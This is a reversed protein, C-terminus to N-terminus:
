AADVQVDAAHLVGHQVQQVRAEPVLHQEVEAVHIGGFREVLQEVLAHDLGVGVGVVAALVHGGVFHHLAGGVGVALRGEGPVAFVGVTLEALHALAQLVDDGRVVHVLVVTGIGEAQVLHAHARQGFGARPVGAVHDSGHTEQLAQPAVDDVLGGALRADGITLEVRLRQFQQVVRDGVHGHLHLGHARVRGDGLEDHEVVMQGAELANRTGRDLRQDQHKGRDGRVDALLQPVPESVGFGQRVGIPRLSVFAVDSLIGDGRDDM